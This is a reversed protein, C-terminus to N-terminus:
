CEYFGRHGLNAVNQSALRPEAINERWTRTRGKCSLGHSAPFFGEVCLECTACVEVGETTHAGLTPPGKRRDLELHAHLTRM